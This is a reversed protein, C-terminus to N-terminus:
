EQEQMVEAPDYNHIGRVIKWAPKKRLVYIFRREADPKTKLEEMTAVEFLADNYSITMLPGWNEKARCSAIRVQDSDPGDAGPMLQVEDPVRPGAAHEAYRADLKGHIWALGQLPLCPVVEGTVIAASTRLIGEVLFYLNLLTLPDFIYDALLFLGSGMVATEGGKAAATAVVNGSGAALRQSSFIFYRYILLVLCPLFEAFGSWFAASASVFANRRYRPPLFALLWGFM